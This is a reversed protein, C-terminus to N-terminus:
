LLPKKCTPSASIGDVQKVSRQAGMQTVSGAVVTTHEPIPDDFTVATAATNGNNFIRVMYELVDGPSPVGDGDVDGALADTFCEPPM